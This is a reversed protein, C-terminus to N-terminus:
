PADKDQDPEMVFWTAGRDPGLPGDVEEIEAFYVKADGSKLLDGLAFTSDARLVQLVRIEAEEANPAEVTRSAFFGVLGDKQILAGPFNEGEILCRFWPM